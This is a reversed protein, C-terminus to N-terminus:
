DELFKICMPGPIDPYEHLFSLKGSKQDISFVILNSSDQNAVLLFKGSPDINFNRPTEGWSSEHGVFELKGGKLVKFIALSNHGRNTGYIFKHDPTMHLDASKNFASFDEPLLDYTQNVKKLGYDSDLSISTVTALMENLVFMVKQDELIEFHRPGSGPEMKLFPTPAASIKGAKADLAYAMVKDTGLDTTYVYKNNPSILIMHPHPEQQRDPNVSSGEHAISQSAPQLSGDENVAYMSITGGGYNAVFVFKGTNDTSVFCPGKGASSQSNLWTLKGQNGVSFASVQDNGVVYLYKKDPSLNFYSAGKLHDNEGAPTISGDEENFSFIRIGAPNNEGNTAVYFYNQGFSTYCFFTMLFIIATLTTTRKM